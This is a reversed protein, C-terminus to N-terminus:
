VGTSSVRRAVSSHARASPNTRAYPDSTRASRRPTRMAFKVNPMYKMSLTLRTAISLSV